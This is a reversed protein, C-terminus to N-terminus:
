SPSIFLPLQVVFEAGGDTANRAIVSGGLAEVCRKVIALGLGSGPIGEVGKGRHFTTFLKPIDDENLGPGHDRVTLLVERENHREIRLIIPSGAPAYKVANGLLNVLITRLMMEDTRAPPLADDAELSIPSRHSTSSLVEDIVRQGFPVVEFSTLKPAAVEARGLSLSQEVLENMREISEDIADLQAVREEGSFKENFRRLMSSAFLIIGLPTRFEHSITNVFSGKLQNLEREHELSDRLQKELALRASMERATCAMYLPVGEPSKIVLGVFDVPIINGDRHVMNIEAKWFGREMGVGFGESQIRQMSEPTYIAEFPVNAINEDPEIGLLKRGAPNLYSPHGDLSSMAVLDTTTDAITKFRLLEVNAAQAETTRRRVQRRLLYIWVSAVITVALAGILWRQLVVRDWAYSIPRVDDFSNVNIRFEKLSGEAILTHQVVGKLQVYHGTDYPIGVLEPLQVLAYFDGLGFFHNHLGNPDVGMAIGSIKASITVPRGEFDGEFVDSVAVIPYDPPGDNRLVRWECQILAPMSKGNHAPVVQGIMEIVDGPKLNTDALIPRHQEHPTAIFDPRRGRAVGTNDQIYFWGARSAYTVTGTVPVREALPLPAARRVEALSTKPGAYVDARGPKIVRLDDASDLAMKSWLRFLVPPQESNPLAIGTVEVVADLYDLPLTQNQAPFSVMLSSLGDDLQLVVRNNKLAIDHVSGKVRVRRTSRGEVLVKEITTDIPEQIQQASAAASSLMLVALLKLNWHPM